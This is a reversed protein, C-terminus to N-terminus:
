TRPAGAALAALSARIAAAPDAIVPGHGPVVRRPGLAAFRELTTRAAALDGIPPMVKTPRDTLADGTLITSDPLRFVIHDPGHGPAEIVELPTDGLDIRAGDALEDVPWSLSAGGGPGAFIPAGTREQLEVSGAAHGPDVHTLAIAVIEGGLAVVEAEILDVFAEDPDGPDVVVIRRQGVLITNAPRGTPGFASGGTLVIVGGGLDERTFPLDSILALRTRIEELSTARELRQLTTSTPPWLRIQNAAMAALAAAPTLWTHGAVEHPDLDVEAGAPLEVAFFRTDFRRPYARPTRWRAVPVLRDTALTLDFRELLTVLDMDGAALAVRLRPLEAALIPDSRAPRGDSRDALLIGAEEFLERLAAVRSADGARTRGLLRLNGDGPEVRGGPFVHLGGGFAMSDPRLTLLM